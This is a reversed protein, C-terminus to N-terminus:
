SAIEESERQIRNVQRHIAGKLQILRAVEPPYRTHASNRRMNEARSICELRDLTIQEPETTRQGPRFVVLHGPPVPGRHEIWVLEHVSRWRKNPGGPDNSIKRQLLGSKSELRLAGIPETNASVHGPRFQTEACRGGPYFHTGANWTAHGPKFRGAHERLYADSKHLGLTVAMGKISTVSRRLVDALVRNHSEPYLARMWLIDDESWPRRGPQKFRKRPQSPAM